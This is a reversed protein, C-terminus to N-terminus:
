KDTQVNPVIGSGIKAAIKLEIYLVDTYIMYVSIYQYQVCLACKRVRPFRLKGGNACTMIVKRDNLLNPILNVIQVVCQNMESVLRSVFSLGM